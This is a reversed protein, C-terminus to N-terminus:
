TDAIDKQYRIAAPIISKKVMDIMTLAEIHITKCYNELLIEYRSRIENETFVGHRTFLEINKESIFYPAADVTTKLNLLGRESAEKVWEDSYGDGNFLIRKHEKIVSIVLRNLDGTFDSSGELVDAFQRLEEAVATNLVTNAESVSESSGLM